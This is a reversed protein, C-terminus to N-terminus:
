RYIIGKIFGPAIMNRIESIKYKQLAASPRLEGGLELGKPLLSIETNRLDLNGGVKLGEPLSTLKEAWNLDLNGGVELGKPLTSLHETHSLNLDGKVKLGEPLSVIDSLKLNFDGEVELDEKTLQYGLRYKWIFTDKDKHKKNEEKELFDLIKILTSKDM